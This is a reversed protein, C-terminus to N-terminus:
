RPSLGEEEVGKPDVAALTKVLADYKLWLFDALSQREKETVNGAIRGACAAQVTSVPISTARALDATNFKAAYALQFPNGDYSKINQGIEATGAKLEAALDQYDFLEALEIAQAKDSRALIRIEKETMLTQGQILM